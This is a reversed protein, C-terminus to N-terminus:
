TSIWKHKERKAICKHLILMYVRIVPLNWTIYKRRWYSWKIHLSSINRVLSMIEFYMDVQSSHPSWSFCLLCFSFYDYNLPKRAMFVVLQFQSLQCRMASMQSWQRRCNDFLPEMSIADNAWHVTQQLHVPNLHNIKMKASKNAQENAQEGFPKTDIKKM